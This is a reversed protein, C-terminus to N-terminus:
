PFSTRAGRGDLIGLLEARTPLYRVSSLVSRPVSQLRQKILHGPAVVYALEATQPV